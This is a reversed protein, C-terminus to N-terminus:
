PIMESRDRLIVKGKDRIAFRGGKGSDGGELIM